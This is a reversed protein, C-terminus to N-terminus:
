GSRVDRIAKAVAEPAEWPVLHGVGDLVVLEARLGEALPEALRPPTMRDASGALVTAPVDVEALRATVDYADCAAFDADLVQGGQRRMMAGGRAALTPDSTSATLILPVVEEFREPLLELFRPSVRLAAGTTVLALGAVREPAALAATLAVAGGLSHGVLVAPGDLAGLLDAAMADISRLLPGERESHGPLEHVRGPVLPLVDAWIEGDEGAGPVFVVPLNM